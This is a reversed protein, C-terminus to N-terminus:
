KQYFKRSHSSHNSTLLSSILVASRFKGEAFVTTTHGSSQPKTISLIISGLQAFLLFGFSREESSPSQMPHGMPWHHAAASWKRTEKKLVTGTTTAGAVLCKFQRSNRRIASILRSNKQLSVSIYKRGVSQVM